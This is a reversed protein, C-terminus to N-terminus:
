SVKEIILRRAANYAAADGDRGAWALRKRLYLPVTAWHARCLVGNPALPRPCRPAACPAANM